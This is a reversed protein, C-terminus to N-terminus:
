KNWIIGKVMNVLFGVVLVVPWILGTLVGTLMVARKLGAATEFAGMFTRGGRAVFGALAALASSTILWFMGVVILPAIQSTM